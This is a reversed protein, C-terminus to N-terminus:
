CPENFGILKLISSIVKLPIEFEAIKGEYFFYKPCKFNMTHRKTYTLIQITYNTPGSDTWMYSYQGRKDMLQNITDSNLTLLSDKLLQKYLSDYNLRVPEGKTIKISDNRRPYSIFTYYSADWKNGHQTLAIYTATNIRNGGNNFWLRIQIDGKVLTVTDIKNLFKSYFSIYDPNGWTLTQANTNLFISITLFIILAKKM